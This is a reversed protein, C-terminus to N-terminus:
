RKSIVRVCFYGSGAGLRVELIQPLDRNDGSSYCQSFPLNTKAPRRPLSRSKSFSHWINKTLNNQDDAMDTVQSGTNLKEQLNINILASEM